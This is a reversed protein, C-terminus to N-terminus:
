NVVYYYEMKDLYASMKQLFDGIQLIPVLPVGNYFKQPVPFLSVIIPVFYALKWNVIGIEDGKAATKIVYVKEGPEFPRLYKNDRMFGTLGGQPAIEGEKIIFQPWEAAGSPDGSIGDKQIVYLEGPRQISLRDASKTLSYVEQLKLAVEKGADSTAYYVEGFGGHGVGRKITFGDLPRSGGPYTFRKAEPAAQGPSNTETPPLDM